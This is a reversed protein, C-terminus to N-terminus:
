LSRIRRVLEEPMDFAEPKAWMSNQYAEVVQEMLYKFASFGDGRLFATIGIQRYVYDEAFKRVDCWTRTELSAHSEQSAQDTPEVQQSPPQDYGGAVPPSNFHKM